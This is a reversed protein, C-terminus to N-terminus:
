SAPPPVPTRARRGAPSPSVPAQRAPTPQQTSSTSPTRTRSPRRSARAPRGALAVALPPALAAHFQRAPLEAAPGLAVVYRAFVVGVVITIAATARESARAGGIREATRDLLERELYGRFAVLLAEHQLLSIIFARMEQARDHDEWSNMVATLIRGAMEEPPGALAAGVIDAPAIAVSLSAVFLGQKSGFYYSILAVDVEADAAIARLTAGAYGDAAFRTRGARVIRDRADSGGAPRGRGKNM